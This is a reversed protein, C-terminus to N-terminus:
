EQKFSIESKLHNILDQAKDAGVLDGEDWLANFMSILVSVRERSNGLTDKTCDHFTVTHTM